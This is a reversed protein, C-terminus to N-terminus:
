TVVAVSAWTIVGILLVAIALVVLLKGFQPGQDSGHPQEDPHQMPNEDDHRDNM